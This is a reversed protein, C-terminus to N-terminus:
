LSPGTYVKFELKITYGQTNLAWTTLTGGVLTYIYRDYKSSGDPMLTGGATHWTGAAALPLKPKNSTSLYYYQSAGTKSFSWAFGPYASSKTIVNELTDPNGDVWVNTAKWTKELPTAHGTLPVVKALQKVWNHGGYSYSETLVDGSVSYNEPVGGQYTVSGGSTSWTNGPTSHWLVAGTKSYFTNSYTGNSSLVILDRVTESTWLAPLGCCVEEGDETARVLDWTAVLKPDNAQPTANGAPFVAPTAPGPSGAGGCGAIIIAM